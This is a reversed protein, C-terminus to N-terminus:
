EIIIQGTAAKILPIMAVCHKLLIKKINIMDTKNKKKISNKQLCSRKESQNVSLRKNARYSAVV